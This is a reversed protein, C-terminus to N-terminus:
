RRLAGYAPTDSDTSDLVQDEGISHLAFRVSKFLIFVLQSFRTYGTSPDPVAVYRDRTADASFLGTSVQRGRKQVPAFLPSSEVSEAM